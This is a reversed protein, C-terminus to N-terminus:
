KLLNNFKITVNLGGYKSKEFMVVGNNLDIIKKLISLGLGSGKNLSNKGKIFPKVLEESNLETGPGDDEISIIWKQNMFYSNIYINEAFKNANELINQIARFIQTKKINIIKSENKQIIINKYKMLQENIFEDSNIKISAENKENKIFDIYSEIMMNMEIINSRIKEKIKEENIGENMLSIRTLPTRLDHSIGTLMTKQTNITEIINNKMNNFDRILGRIETSGTPRIDPTLIGRGFSRTMIGLRQLPRIQNKIFLYSILSLIISCFLVWLFFGTITKTELKDKSILINFNNNKKNIIIIFYDNNYIGFDSPYEINKLAQNMRKNLFFNKTKTIKTDKDKLIELEFTNLIYKPINEQKQNDKLIIEINNIINSSLKKLVLDWHLEFFIIIGILQILVIPISILYFSRLLLSSYLRKVKHSM